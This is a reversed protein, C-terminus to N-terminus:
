KSGKEIAKNFARIVDRKRTTPRDNFEVISSHMENQLRERANERVGFDNDIEVFYIAQTACVGVVKGDKNRKTFDKKCWGVNEIIWKAAKLVETATKAKM